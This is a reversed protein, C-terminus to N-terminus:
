ICPKLASNQALYAPNKLSCLPFFNVMLRGLIKKTLSFKQNVKGAIRTADTKETNWVKVQGGSNRSFVM